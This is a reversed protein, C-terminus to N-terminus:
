SHFKTTQFKSYQKLNILFFCPEFLFFPRSAYGSLPNDVWQSSQQKTSLIALSFHFFNLKMPMQRRFALGMLRHVIETFLRQGYISCSDLFFNRLELIWEQILYKLVLHIWGKKRHIMEQFIMWGEYNIIRM